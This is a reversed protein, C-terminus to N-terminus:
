NRQSPAFNVAEGNEWHDRASPFLQFALPLCIDEVSIGMKSFWRDEPNLTKMHVPEGTHNTRFGGLCSVTIVRHKHLASNATLKWIMFLLLLKCFGPFVYTFAKM